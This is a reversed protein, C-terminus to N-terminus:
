VDFTVTVLFGTADVTVCEPIQDLRLMAGSFRDKRIRALMGAFLDSNAYAGYKDHKRFANMDCHSRKFEPVQVFQYLPVDDMSYMTQVKAKFKITAMTM